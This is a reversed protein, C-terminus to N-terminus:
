IIKGNRYSDVTKILDQFFELKKQPKRFFLAKPDFEFVLKLPQNFSMQSVEKLLSNLFLDNKQFLSHENQQGSLHIRGLVDKNQGITEIPDFGNEYGKTKKFWSKKLHDTDIVLGKLQYEKVYNKLVSPDFIMRQDKVWSSYDPPTNEVFVGPVNNKLDDLKEEQILGGLTSPHINVELGQQKAMKLAREDKFVGFLGLFFISITKRKLTHGQLSNFHDKLDYNPPLHLRTTKAKSYEKEWLGIIKPQYNILFHPFLEIGIQDDKSRNKNLENVMWYFEKEKGLYGASSIEIGQVGQYLREKRPESEISRMQLFIINFLSM